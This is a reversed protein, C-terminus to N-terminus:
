GLTCVNVFFSAVKLLLVSMVETPFPLLVFNTTDVDTVLRDVLNLCKYFIECFDGIFNLPVFTSCYRIMM